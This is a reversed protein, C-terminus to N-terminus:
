DVRQWLPHIGDGPQDPKSVVYFPGRRLSTATSDEDWTYVSEVMFGAEAVRKVFDNGFEWIHGYGHFTVSRIQYSKELEKTEPVVIIGWRGPKLIRYLESIARRYDVIHELVNCCVFADASNDRLALDMVDSLINSRKFRDIALYRVAPHQSFYRRSARSPGIEILTLQGNTVDLRQELLEVLLRTQRSSGCELCIQDALFQNASIAAWYGFRHGQWGCMSCTVRREQRLRDRLRLYMNLMRAAINSALRYPNRYVAAPSDPHLFVLLGLRLFEIM